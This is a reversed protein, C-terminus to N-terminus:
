SAPELVLSQRTPGPLLPTPEGRSRAAHGDRDLPSLLHGSQGCPVHLYGCSERGPAVAQRQSAGHDPRQIRSMDAWGGPLPVSTSLPHRFRVTNREGWTRSELPTGDAAAEDLMADVAALLLGDWDRYSPDLLHVPREALIAWIPGETQHFVGLRLM